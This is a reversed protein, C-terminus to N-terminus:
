PEVLTKEVALPAFLCNNRRCSIPRRLDRIGVATRNDDPPMVIVTFTFRLLHKLKGALNVVFGTSSPLHLPMDFLRETKLRKGSLEFPWGYNPTPSSVM